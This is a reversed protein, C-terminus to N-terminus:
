ANKLDNLLDDQSQSFLSVIYKGLMEIFTKKSLGAMEAAQGSSVFGDEYLKSAVYVELDFEKLRVNEPLNLTVKM